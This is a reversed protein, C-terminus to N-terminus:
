EKEGRWVSPIEGTSPMDIAEMLQRLIRAQVKPDIAEIHLMGRGVEAYALIERGGRLIAEAHQVEGKLALEVSVSLDIAFDRIGTDPGVCEDVYGYRCGNPYLFKQELSYDM